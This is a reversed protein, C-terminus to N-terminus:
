FLWIILGMRCVLGSDFLTWVNEMWNISNDARNEKNKKFIFMYHMDYDYVLVCNHFFVTIWNIISPKIETM